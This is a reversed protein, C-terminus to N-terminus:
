ATTTSTLISSTTRFFSTAPLGRGKYGQAFPGHEPITFATLNSCTSRPAPAQLELFSSRTRGPDLLLRSALQTSSQQRQCHQYRSLYTSEQQKQQQLLLTTTKLPLLHFHSRQDASKTPLLLRMTASYAEINRNDKGIQSAAPRNVQSSVLSVQRLCAAITQRSRSWHHSPSTEPASVSSSSSPWQQRGRSAHARFM